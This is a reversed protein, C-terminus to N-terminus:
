RGADAAEGADLTARTAAAYGHAYAVAASATAHDPGAHIGGIIPRFTGAPTRHVMVTFGSADFTRPTVDDLMDRLRGHDEPALEATFHRGDDYAFRLATHRSGDTARWRYVKVEASATPGNGRRCPGNANVTATPYHAHM